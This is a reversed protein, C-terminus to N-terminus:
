KFLASSPNSIGFRYYCTSNVQCITHLGTCFGIFARVTSGGTFSLELVGAGGLVCAIRHTRGM